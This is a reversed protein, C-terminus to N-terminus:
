QLLQWELLVINWVSWEMETCALTLNEEFGKTV